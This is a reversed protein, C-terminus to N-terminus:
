AVMDVKTAETGKEPARTALKGLYKTNMVAGGNRTNM